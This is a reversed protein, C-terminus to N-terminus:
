RDVRTNPYSLLVSIRRNEAADPTEPTLPETAALGSIRTIRAPSVGTDILVRRTANARDASLEWNSYGQNSSFPVSDTHGSIVIPNPLDMIAEGIIRILSRTRADVRSSGRAFMSRGEKDVIQVLLGDPTRDFRLNDQFEQLDSREVVHAIIEEELAQMEANREAIEQARAEAEAMEQTAEEVASAEPTPEPTAEVMTGDEQTEYEVIVETREDRLRSDFVALPNEQGFNPVQATSRSGPDNSGGNVGDSAVITGALMGQGTGGAQSLSPTFYDALGRLAEEDSAALIWLLLFFAMMATMFDAYAVKWGGGHHGGGGDEEIKKIIIPENTAM